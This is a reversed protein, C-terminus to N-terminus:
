RRRDASLCRESGVVDGTARGTSRILGMGNAGTGISPAVENGLHVLLRVVMDHGFPRPTRKSAGSQGLM